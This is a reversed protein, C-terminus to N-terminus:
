KRRKEEGLRLHEWILSFAFNIPGIAQTLGRAVETELLKETAAVVMM